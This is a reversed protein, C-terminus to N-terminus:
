PDFADFAVDNGTNQFRITYILAEEFLTYNGSRAPNVLKDNPDYSCRIESCYQFIDSTDRGQLDDFVTFTMFKLSDGLQFDPPGPILVQARQQLFEGPFLGEFKWGFLFDGSVTDPTSDFEIEQILSDARFWFIGDSVTTGANKVTLAAHTRTFDLAM